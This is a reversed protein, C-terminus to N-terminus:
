TVSGSVQVVATCAFASRQTSTSTLPSAIPRVLSPATGYATTAASDEQPGVVPGAITSVPAPNQM